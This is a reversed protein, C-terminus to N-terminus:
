CAHGSLSGTAMASAGHKGPLLEQSSKFGLNREPLTNNCPGATSYAGQDLNWPGLVAAGGAATRSTATFPVKIHICPRVTAYACAFDLPAQLELKVEMLWCGTNRREKKPCTSNFEFEFLYLSM